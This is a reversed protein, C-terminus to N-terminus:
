VFRVIHDLRNAKPDFEARGERKLQTLAKNIEEAYVRTKVLERYIERRKPSKGRWHSHIGDALKSINADRTNNTPPPPSALDGLAFLSPQGIALKRSVYRDQELNWKLTSQVVEAEDLVKNMSLAGTPDHTTLILYFMTRTRDQFEIPILKVALDSDTEELTQQYYKALNAELGGQESGEGALSRWSTSGFLADLHQVDHTTFRGYKRQISIFQWNMMVDARPLTVFSKVMEFPLDKIGYPDLFAFTWTYPLRAHEIADGYCTTIDRQAVVIEGDEPRLRPPNIKLQKDFGAARLSNLLEAFYASDKEILIAATQLEFGQKRAYEKARQLALVGLVPSGWVPADLSGEVVAADEDHSYRGTHSFGDVYVFRSEFPQGQSQAKRAASTLGSIIIGAWADIYKSLVQHKVQTQVPRPDLHM